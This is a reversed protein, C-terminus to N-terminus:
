KQEFLYEIQKDPFYKDKITFMENRTWETIGNFKSRVTTYSLNLKNDKAFDMMTLDKRAMEAKLNEFM